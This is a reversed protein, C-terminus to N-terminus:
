RKISFEEFEETAEEYKVEVKDVIKAGLIERSKLVDLLKKLTEKDSEAVIKVTGDPLNEVCGKIDMERAIARAAARFGVGQVKGHVTIIARVKM